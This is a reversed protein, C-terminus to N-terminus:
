RAARRSRRTRPTCGPSSRATTAPTYLPWGTKEGTAAYGTGTAPVRHGLYGNGVYPDYGESEGFRTSSLAWTPDQGDTRGCAPVAPSSPPPPPTAAAARPLPPLPAILAAAVLPALVSIRSLSVTRLYPPPRVPPRYPM